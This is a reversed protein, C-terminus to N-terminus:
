GENKTTLLERVYGRLNAYMSQNIVCTAGACSTCVDVPLWVLRDLNRRINERLGAERVNGIPSPRRIAHAGCWHQSGDPLVFAQSPALLCRDLLAGQWYVGAAAQACYEELTMHHDVRRYPNAYPVQGELTKRREDPVGVEAQYDQWVKEAQEWTGTYFRMWEEATPRIPANDPGGVPILHFAFDGFVPDDAVCGEDRSRVKRVDLIWQLLEPFQFLNRRTMVCNIHIQPHNAGLIERAVQINFIGNWVKEVRQEGRFLEGQLHPDAADLSIHLKSLGTKVLQLAVRPTILAANTNINVACGRETAFAVLGDDGWVAEKLLLPEGGTLYVYPPTPRAAEAILRKWDQMTMRHPIRTQNCYLCRPNFCCELTLVLGLFLLPFPDGGAMAAKWDELAQMLLPEDSNGERIISLVRERNRDKLYGSAGALQSPAAPPIRTEAKTREVLETDSLLGRWAPSQALATLRERQASRYHEFLAM